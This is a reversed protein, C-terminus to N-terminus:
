SPTAAGRVGKVVQEAPRYGGASLWPEGPTPTAGEDNNGGRAACSTRRAFATPDGHVGVVELKHFPRIMVLGISISPAAAEETKSLSLTGWPSAGSGFFGTPRLGPCNIHARKLRSRVPTTEATM